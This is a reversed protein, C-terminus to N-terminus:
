RSYIREGCEPCVIHLGDESRHWHAETSGCERCMCRGQEASETGATNDAPRSPSIAKEPAPATASAPAPAPAPANRQIVDSGTTAQIRNTTATDCSPTVRAYSSKFPEGEFTLTGNAIAEDDQARTAIKSAFKNNLWTHRDYFMGDVQMLYGSELLEDLCSEDVGFGRTIRRVALIRGVVDCEFLLMLYLWQAEVSMSLFSDSQAVSAAIM